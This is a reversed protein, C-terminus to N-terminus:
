MSATLIIQLRPMSKLREPKISPTAGQEAMDVDRTFKMDEEYCKMYSLYTKDKAFPSKAINLFSFVDICEKFSVDIDNVDPASSAAPTFGSDSEFLGFRNSIVFMDRARKMSLSANDYRLTYWTKLRSKDRLAYKVDDSLAPATQNSIYMSAM